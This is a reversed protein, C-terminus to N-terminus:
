PLSDQLQGVVLNDNYEVCVSVAALGVDPVKKKMTKKCLVVSDTAKFSLHVFLLAENDNRCKYGLKGVCKGGKWKYGNWPVSGVCLLSHMARHM